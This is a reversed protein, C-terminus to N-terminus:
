AGLWHAMKPEIKKQFISQDADKSGKISKSAYRSGFNQSLYGIESLSLSTESFTVNTM